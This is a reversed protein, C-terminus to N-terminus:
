EARDEVKVRHVNMCLEVRRALHGPSEEKNVFDSGGAAFARVLDIRESLGTLFLVPVGSLERRQRLRRSVEYGDMEPMMVDLLVVHPTWTEVLELASPGCGAVQVEFGRRHFLRAILEQIFPSDDVLLLRGKGPRRAATDGSMLLLESNLAAVEHTSPALDGTGRHVPPAPRSPLLDTMHQVEDM